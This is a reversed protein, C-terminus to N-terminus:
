NAEVLNYNDNIEKILTIGVSTLSSTERSYLGGVNLGTIAGGNIVGKDALEKFAKIIEEDRTCDIENIKIYKVVIKLIEIKGLSVSYKNSLINDENENKPIFDYFKREFIEANCRANTIAQILLNILGYSISIKEGISFSIGTNGQEGPIFEIDEPLEGNHVLECRYFKYLIYMMDYKKGKFGALIGGTSINGNNPLLNNDILRPVVIDQGDDQGFLISNVRGGLFVIFAEGDSMENKKEKNKGNKVIPDIISTTGKPFKRKSSAAVALMLVSLAGLYRKNQALFIADEVQQKIGM